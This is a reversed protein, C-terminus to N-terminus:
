KQCTACRAQQFGECSMISTFSLMKWILILQYELDNINVKIGLNYNLLVTRSHINIIIICYFSLAIADWIIWFLKFIIFYYNGEKCM